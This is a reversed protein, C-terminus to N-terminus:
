IEYSLRNVTRIRGYLPVHLFVNQNSRGRSSSLFKDGSKYTQEPEKAVKLRQPYLGEDKFIKNAMHQKDGISMAQYFEEFDRTEITM